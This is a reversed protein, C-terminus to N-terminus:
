IPIEAQWWHLLRPMILRVVAAQKGIVGWISGFSSFPSSHQWRGPGWLGLKEGWV